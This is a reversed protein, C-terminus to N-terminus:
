ALGRAIVAASRIGREYARLPDPLEAADGIGLGHRAGMVYSDAGKAIDAAIQERLQSLEVDRAAVYERVAPMILEDTYTEWWPLGGGPADDNDNADDYLKEAIIGSLAALDNITTATTATIEFCETPDACCNCDDVGVCCTTM